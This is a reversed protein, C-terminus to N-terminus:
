QALAFLFMSLAYGFLGVMMIPKRGVRDSLRGWWPSFILQALSFSATLWGMTASTAGFLQIYYPEVPFLVSFGIMVLFLVVFLLGLVRNGMRTTEQRNGPYPSPRVGRGAAPGPGLDLHHRHHAAVLDPVLRLLGALRLSRYLHPVVFLHRRGLGLCVRVAVFGHGAAVM